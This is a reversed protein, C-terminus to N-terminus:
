AAAIMVRLRLIGNPFQSPQFVRFNSSLDKKSILQLLFSEIVTMVFLFGLTM